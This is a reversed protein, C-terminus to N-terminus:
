LYISLYISLHISISISVYIYYTIKFKVVVSFKYVLKYQTVFFIALISLGFIPFNFQFLIWACLSQWIYYRWHLNKTGSLSSWSIRPCTTATEHIKYSLNSTINWPHQMYPVIRSIIIHSHQLCSGCEKEGVVPSPSNFSHLWWSVGSHPTIHTQVLVHPSPPLWETIDCATNSFISCLSKGWDCGVFQKLGCGYPPLPGQGVCHFIVM